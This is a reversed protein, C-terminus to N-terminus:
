QDESLMMVFQVEYLLELVPMKRKLEEFLLMVFQVAYLLPTWPEGTNNYANCNTIVNNNSSSLIYIGYTNNYANCN